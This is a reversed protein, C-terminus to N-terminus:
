SAPVPDRVARVGYAHVPRPFGKLALERPADVVLLDDVEAYLRQSVLIEGGAAEDALRAALNTVSGIAAYDSRGDFGVEGCTAFGLAVGTGVDLDYGRKGWVPLLGAMEERLACALRVARLPADPIEIPD